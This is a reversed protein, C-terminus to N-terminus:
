ALASLLTSYGTSVPTTIYEVENAAFSTVYMVVGTIVPYEVSNDTSAYPWQHTDLGRAGFLSPLDSYCAHIYQDPTAWGTNECHSFKAFSLLSAFIALAILARIKM